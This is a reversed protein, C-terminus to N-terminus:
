PKKKEEEMVTKLAKLLAPAPSAEGKKLDPQTCQYETQGKRNLVFAKYARDTSDRVSLDKAVKGDWDLLNVPAHHPEFPVEAKKFAEELSKKQKVLRDKIAGRIRGRLFGPAGRLDISMVYVIEKEKATELMMEQLLAFAADGSSRGSMILFVAKGQYDSLSTKGGAANEVQSKTEEYRLANRYAKASLSPQTLLLGVVLFLGWLPLPIKRM